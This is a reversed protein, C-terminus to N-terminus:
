IAAEVQAGGIFTVLLMDASLVRVCEVMQRIVRDDYEVPRNKLGELIADAHEVRDLLSQQAGNGAQQERLKATLAAKEELLKQLADDYQEDYKNQASLKLLDAYAADLEGIRKQMLYAQESSQLEYLRIHEKLRGVDAGGQKAYATVADAIAAHIKYEELTPSHKCYKTGFDLRSVCRWVVKKGSKRMWTCRRYPTGCDGCFLLETLAYKSSYKGQETKTAAKSVRQKGSRRALEEQARDFVAREIIAPHSNEVYYMPLEGNNKKKKKSIPDATFTKQLLADGKYKENKLIRKVGSATWTTNGHGTRRGEAMLLKAIDLLSMGTLYSDFILRVTGAEDPDIEPNGDAGKRYGLMNKFSIAVNGKQASRRKGIKVNESISESEAQSLGSFLTILLESSVQLTNIAEKEFIIPIGLEKLERVYSLCDLNNRSFRSVSKTIIADIKGKRCDEIMKMFRPRKKAITGTLGEDAYIDALQWHPNLMIKETYMDKQTEFSKEQEEQETSVRCYAAMRIPRDGWRAEPAKKPDAPIERM